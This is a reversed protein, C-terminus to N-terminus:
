LWRWNPTVDVKTIGGTWFISNSGVNLIPFEGLMLSNLNSGDTGYCNQITSDIVISESISILNIVQTGVTLVGDGNGYVKIIPESYITGINNITGVTNFTNVINSVAYKFPRCNFVIIFRSFINFIQAFDISNVVQAMYKRDPQNDFILSSEGSGILWGKILDVKATLSDEEKIACEVTVTIDEYANEDFRLASNRGPIELTTVRRTPSPISPTKSVLIGYDIFSNKGGFDFSLM